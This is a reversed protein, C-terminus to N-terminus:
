YTVSTITGSAMVAAVVTGAKLDEIKGRDHLFVIAGPALKVKASGAPFAVTLVGAEVSEVTVNTMLNGDPLPRQGAPVNRFSEGFIGIQSAELTGDSATKATIALYMGKQLDAAKKNETKTFRTEASLPYSKGDALTLKDAAITQVTGRVAEQGPGLPGLQPPVPTATPPVATVTPPAQAPAPAPAAPACAAALLLAASLILIPLRM